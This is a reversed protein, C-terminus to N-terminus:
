PTDEEQPAPDVFLVKLETQLQGGEPGSIEMAKRKTHVYTALEAFMRGRLEPANRKNMAIRAMGEIPECDLDRLIEVIARTAKNPTGRKRGGTKRGVAM